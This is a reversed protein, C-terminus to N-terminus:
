TSILNMSENNTASADRLHLHSVFNAPDAVRKSLCEFSQFGLQHNWGLQFVNTLNSWRGWTPTFMLSFLLYKFGGGIYYDFLDPQQHLTLFTGHEPGKHLVTDIMAILGNATCREDLLSVRVHAFCRLKKFKSAIRNCGIFLMVWFIVNGRSFCGTVCGVPQLSTREGFQVTQSSEGLRFERCRCGHIPHLFGFGHHWRGSRCRLSIEAGHLVVHHNGDM